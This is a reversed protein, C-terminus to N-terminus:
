RVLLVNGKLVETTGDLFVVETYYVYVGANLLKGYFTGDWAFSLDNPQFNNLDLMLDGWRNFIQFNKIYQVDLGGHIILLDNIQDGNPSFANPIFVRRDKRISVRVDDSAECNHRDIISATYTTTQLPAVIPEFCDTCSIEDPPSWQISQIESTNSHPLLQYSDGLYISTDNPLQLLLNNPVVEIHLTDLSFCGPAKVAVITYEISTDPKIKVTNCDNCDLYLNPQWEYSDFGEPSYILESAECITTDAGVNLVTAPLIHVEVTDSQIRGCSDTAEVWFKGSDWTTFSSQNSGDQWQYTFFQDGADITAVGNDCILTDPGLNLVPAEMEDFDLSLSDMNNEFICEQFPSVSLDTELDYPRTISGIDNIVMYIPATTWQIKVQINLCSDKLIPQPLLLTNLLPAEMTTPNNEYISIPTHRALTGVNDNCIDINLLLSDGSCRWSVDGIFGDPLSECCPLLCISSDQSYSENFSPFFKIFSLTDQNEEWEFNAEYPNEINFSEVNLNKLASCAANLSEGNTTMKTLLIEKRHTENYSQSSGLLYLFQGQQIIDYAFEDVLGGISKAWQIKGYVDTCIIFIDSQGDKQYNGILVYRFPLKLLRVARESNANPLNFRKTWVINGSYNLKTLLLETETQDIGNLNGHSFTILGDSADIDKTVIWAPENAPALYYKSFQQIQNSLTTIFGRTSSANNMDLALEGVLYHAYNSAYAKKYFIEKGGLDSYRVTSSFSYQGNFAVKNGTQKNIATGVIENLKISNLEYRYESTDPMSVTVNSDVVSFKFDSRENNESFAYGIGNYQFNDNIEIDTIGERGPVLDITKENLVVGKQDVICILSSDGKSGALMFDGTSTLLIKKAIMNQESTGITTVFTSDCSISSDECSCNPLASLYTDVQSSEPESVFFNNPIYVEQRLALTEVSQSESTLRTLLDAAYISNCNDQIYGNLDTKYLLFDTNDKIATFFFANGIQQINKEANFSRGNYKKAWQFQGEKDTKILFSQLGINGFLIFGDEVSIIEHVYQGSVSLLNIKKKWILDGDLNTKMFFISSQEAIHTKNAIVFCANDEVILDIGNLQGQLETDYFNYKKSWVLHGDVGIKTLSCSSTNSSFNIPETNGLAYFNGNYLVTSNFSSYQDSLPSYKPYTFAVQPTFVDGTSPDIKLIAGQGNTTMNPGLLKNYIVYYADGSPSEIINRCLFLISLRKNWLLQDSEPDYKFIYSVGNNQSSIKSGVGVLMGNQDIIMDNITNEISSFISITRYWLMEGLTNIKAINIFKDYISWSYFQGNPLPLIGNTRTPINPPTITKIFAEESCDIYRENVSFEYCYKDSCTEDFAWLCIQYVGAEPFILSINEDSFILSDNQYWEYNLAETSTNIFNITDGPSPYYNDLTFAAHAPCYVNIRITVEEECNEDNNNAILTININGTTNFLYSPHPAESFLEGDALWKFQTANNSNNEFTLTTGLAINYSSVGFDASLPSTCPPTCASSALLSNRKNEIFYAMRDAQGQTFASFCNRNGYDMYNWYMDETDYNFGSNPDTNCSNISEGCSIDIISQDPPTDCVRDGDTLCNDNDCGGQFTHYLGLYHGMEHILITTTAEDAGFWRAELVIGDKNSGHQSPTAAYGAVTCGLSQTCIERVLWINIYDKPQWRILNKLLIDQTEVTMETLSSQIRNIGSTEIGDPTRQALCFQIDTSVGTNQDYYDTNAFAQNLYEIGQIVQADNINEEENDHIIHVVIPLTCDELTKEHQQIFQTYGKELITDAIPPTGCFPIVETQAQIPSVWSIWIIILLAFTKTQM